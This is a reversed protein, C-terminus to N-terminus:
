AYVRKRNKLIIIIREKLVTYITPRESLWKLYLMGKLSQAIEYLKKNKYKGFPIKWNKMDDINLVPILLQTKKIDAQLIPVRPTDVIDNKLISNLALTDNKYSYNVGKIDEIIFNIIREYKLWPTKLYLIKTQFMTYDVKKHKQISLGGLIHNIQNFHEKSYYYFPYKVDGKTIKYIPREIIKCFNSKLVSDTLFDDNNKICKLYTKTFQRSTIKVNFLSKYDLFTLINMLIDDCIHLRNNM